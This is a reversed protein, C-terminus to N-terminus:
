VLSNGLRDESLGRRLARAKAGEVWGYFCPEHAWLYWSYTLVGRTKFWIIQQHVFAGHREWVAELEAQKRSAHWCYWAANPVIAHQIATAIFGDFLGDGQKASDWDHYTDRWDKNKNKKDKKWNQPHNLGTYNVLYPPDTAFLVAREGNMLKVVDTPNTSDGILLRHKGLQWLDGSCVRTQEPSRRRTSTM